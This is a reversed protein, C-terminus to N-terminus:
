ERDPGFLLERVTLDEGGEIVDYLHEGTSWTQNVGPIGFAAGVLKTTSKTAALTIEEDTFLREGIQKSGQIGKELMSAVPTSNYGYDTVLASAVDRIFPMSQMPYLAVATLFKSLRDDEDEPEELEGRMLMEMFVPITFLFMMKAAVNSTSYLGTRRGKVLDRSLNGLASFFTMFMTFTTHIKGQNRVITAMDKTAGSGQLNEVSWDARRAAKAEDGSESLEKDYAAHWTPLDIMYTQILAIHKMSTEQVAALIGTKGKLRNMAARIERDMTQTRHQMVKSREVAFDWGTQMDETSGLTRRLAKMYFSQGVATQIGKITPGIGLEAATTFVGFLQMIGTSAKFGMVGLTVGFRLRQFAEDIFTKTPQQRGDKAVDNLWPKLQKYESEGLVGTIASAVDQSQILKNIQRVADHHTIYHITENFHDPVVDLNLFIRDYFGTRENTAGTNVSAQISATNNFMSETEAEQKEANKEAKHSRAPSYKIPYYGGRFTGHENTIPTAEIKPPTLGTTRRHVEALQPYLLDMQDWISQALQWDSKTMHALVAQLQPNDFSIEADNEPNAWGEGLLLKKLNSQNGTNLAVAIVQHGQLNDNIEPIWIKRNHRKIDDDSRNLIASIVPTAVEDVLKIKADLADTMPQVLIDHSLGAREGGDLWSAMFPVKTLQSAWRRVHDMASAERADETRSRSEKTTFRQDQENISDVWQSRLKKFEIDEDLMKIKNAYRAVHEINKVSDNIGQLDSFPVNKWHTVYSENLVANSLVLGDGDSESREKVWTNLSEVQTLSASKRFEFRDLIKVIQDWYGGDSKMIAERVRKKRYRGMNDVIKTTQNRAETAELALYYNMVQQLKASAAGDKNGLALMRASEQAARIEARRYKAPHIQRFSLKGINDKALEKIAARDITPVNTGRALVKLESLILKGREESQVAEDAEREITGDTLIDGHREVMIAQASSEAADMIPPAAILDNLMESGSDYGLFAAAEDPHIGKQGPATMGRLKPPVIRSKRDRKDVKDEGVMDKVTALDLKIDGTKLQNRANYVKEDGLRILEEDIVDQKEEKWWAKTQRTLQAIIKDRLTESQVDKVKSQKKQHNKFEEDTMGAMAADTFMPEVRARVEAAAIQEETALLRDFVARMEDDLNVLLNGRFSQYIQSLWRTFTRFANRLEISPSKGEMLYTEFGRAFQEHVARRIAADKDQDGTTEQDLFTVVDAETISGEKGTPPKTTQYLVTDSFFADARADKTGIEDKQLNGIKDKPIRVVAIEDPDDFQDFLSNEVKEKWFEVGDLETVFVRGRSHAKYIDAEFTTGSDPILGQVQIQSANSKTTVHYLFDDPDSGQPVTGEFLEWNAKNDEDIQDIASQKLGDFEDGLYTNAEAAVDAANRKYWNNISQLMETDGNLEMEYMFHAFEHLFTSLNASETLRIITNAPDYYGRAQKATQQQGFLLSELDEELKNLTSGEFAIAWNLGEVLVGDHGIDILAERRETVEAPTLDGMVDAFTEASIVLPNNFTFQHVSVENGYREANGVDDASLYHGLNASPTTTNQGLLSDDFSAFDDNSRHIFTVEEGSKAREFEALAAEDTRGKAEEIITQRAKRQDAEESRRTIQEDTITGPQELLTTSEAPQVDGTVNPDSLASDDFVFVSNPQNLGESVRVAKFGKEKAESIAQDLEVENNASPMKDPEYVESTKIVSQKVEDDLGSQTFNRAFELDTSHFNGGQDGALQGRFVIETGQEFVEGALRAREGTQPGEIVLGSETYVQQVTKGTSRAQATAWAPVVQAMVSANAANVEGSDILQDRVQNYVEQAEVFESVNENAENMLQDMYKKNEQTVQEQRFPSVTDGSLTMSDRLETFHETGAFDTAFDAVPIQVDGGLSSAERAQEALIKLAPDTEIEEPTKTQLYLATQAGDIFVTTNNDGDAQEVFQSFSEKSRERLKSESAKENLDDIKKQEIQSKNNRKIEGEALSTAVKQASSTVTGAGLGGLGSALVGESLSKDPDFSLREALNTNFAQASETAFEKLGSELISLFSKGAEGKLLADPLLKELVANVIGAQAQAQIFDVDSIKVGTRAEFDAADSAVEMSEMWAIFPISGGSLYSSALSPAAQGLFGAMAVPDTAISVVGKFDGDLAMAFAKDAKQASTVNEQFSEFEDGLIQQAIDIRNAVESLSGIRTEVGPIEGFALFEAVDEVGRIPNLFRPLGTLDEISQSVGGVVRAAAEPTRFIAESMGLTGTAAGAAGAGLTDGITSLVGEIAQMVEVDDQAIVANNFDDRLFGATQPSRDVLDTFDFQNRKISQEVEGPNDKVAFEPIGSKRSLDVVKAHEDPKIKAAESMTFDLDDEAVSGFNFPNDVSKDPAVQSLTSLDVNDSDFAM